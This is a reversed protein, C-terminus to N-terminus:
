GLKTVTFADFVQFSLPPINQVNDLFWFSHIWTALSSVIVLMDVLNLSILLATGPSPSRRQLFYSLSLANTLFGLIIIGAALYSLIVLYEPM